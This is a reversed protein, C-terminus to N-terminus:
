SMSVVGAPWPTAATSPWHMVPVWVVPGSLGGKMWHITLAHGHAPPSVGPWIAATYSHKVAISLPTAGEDTRANVAAGRDLLLKVLDAHGLEAALHLATTGGEYRAALNAGRDLLLQVIAHDGTLLSVLLPTNGFKNEARKELDAGRRPRAPRARGGPQRRISRLPALDPDAPLYPFM